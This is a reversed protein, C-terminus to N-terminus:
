YFFDGIQDESKIYERIFHYDVEIHKTREHFMLNNTIHITVQNDYNNTRSKWSFIWDGTVLKSDM